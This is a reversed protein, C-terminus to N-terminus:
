ILAAIDPNEGDLGVFAGDAAEPSDPHAILWKNCAWLLADEPISDAIKPKETNTGKPLVVAVRFGEGAAGNCPAYHLTTAYLEVAAGAPARFAEVKATDLHGDTLDSECAVLFIMEQAPINIESDRHYEVCNLKTNNGNCYGIQIPMGGYVSDRLIPYLATAELTPESPVYIVADEPKETNAELAAVLAATDLGAIVKGYRAFAPDFVSQITM